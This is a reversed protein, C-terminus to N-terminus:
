LIEMAKKLLYKTDLRYSNTSAYYKLNNYHEKVSVPIEDKNKALDYLKNVM